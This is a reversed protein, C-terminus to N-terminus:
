LFKGSRFSGLQVNGCFSFGHAFHDKQKSQYAEKNENVLESRMLFHIRKRNIFVSTQGFDATGVELRNTLTSSGEKHFLFVDM